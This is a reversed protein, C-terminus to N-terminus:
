CGSGGDGETPEFGDPYKIVHLCNDGYGGELPMSWLMELEGGVHERYNDWAKKTALTYLPTGDCDRSHEVVWLRAGANDLYEGHIEVLSGIPIKHTQEMNEQRWTKGTEPNVLDAVNAVHVEVELPEEPEHTM